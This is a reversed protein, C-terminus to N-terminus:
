CEALEAAGVQAQHIYRQTVVLSKHGAWLQIAPASKGAAAMRSIKTHRLSHICWERRVADSLQLEDCVFHKADSYHQLFHGYSIPFVHDKGRARMARLAKVTDATIPLRRPMNGKTKIYTVEYRDLDVRDWTLNLAEGVRCGQERLFKTLSVDIRHERQDLRDILATIWDDRLVLDRPEPLPLTRGEPMLPMSEVWGLRVSRKLMVSLCSLYKRITTNGMAKGFPKKRLDVVLDDVYRTTIIKPHLGPGILKVLRVANEHQSPDKDAWDMQECTDVLHGMTQGDFQGAVWPKDYRRRQRAEADLFQEEYARAEAETDFSKSQTFGGESTQRFVWKNRDKRYFVTM